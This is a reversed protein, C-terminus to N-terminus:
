PLEEFQPADGCIIDWSAKSSVHVHESIVIDPNNNLTGIAIGFVEDNYIGALTTGCKKCFALGINQKNVFKTLSSEGHVWQFSQDKLFTMASGSGSYAKRCRSCHCCRVHGVPGKFSYKVEGCFCEGDLVKENEM